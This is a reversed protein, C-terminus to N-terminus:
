VRPGGPSFRLLVFEGYRAVEEFGRRLYYRYADLEPFTVIYAEKELESLRRVAFDLLKSGYGRGQHEPGVMLFEILCTRETRIGEPVWPIDKGAFTYVLAVTGVIEGGDRLIYLEDFEERLRFELFPEYVRRFGEFDDPSPKQEAWELAPYSGETGRYVSFVFRLLEDKLEIPREVREIGCDMASGM